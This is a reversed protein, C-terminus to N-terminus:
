NNGIIDDVNLYGNLISLVQDFLTIAESLEPAMNHDSEIFGICVEICTNICSITLLLAHDIFSSERLALRLSLNCCDATDKFVFGYTPTDMDHRHDSWQGIEESQALCEVLVKTLNQNISM